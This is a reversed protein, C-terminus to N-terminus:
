NGGPPDLEPTVTAKFVLESMSCRLGDELLEGTAPDMQSFRIDQAVGNIELEGTPLEEVGAGLRASHAAFLMSPSFINFYLCIRCNALDRDEPTMLISGKFLNEIRPDGTWFELRIEGLFNIFPWVFTESDETVLYDLNEKKAQLDTCKFSPEDDPAAIDEKDSTEDSITSSACATLGITTFGIVMILPCFARTSDFRNM